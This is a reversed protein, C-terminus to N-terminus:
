KIFLWLIGIGLCLSVVINILAFGFLGNQMLYLTDVSFTSFTSFGGCFGIIIFYKIWENSLIRDKFFYVTLGLVLCALFNALLTGLPFKSNTNLLLAAKGTIFRTISGLGGGLFILVFTTVTGM